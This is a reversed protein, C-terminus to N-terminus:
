SGRARPSTSAPDARDRRARMERAIADLDAPALLQRLAPFLVEEELRLHGAFARELERAAAALRERRDAEDPAARLAAAASVLERVGADHEAHQQHMAALAGDIGPSRGRLRPALSEEEDTVHLPLAVTFYREVRECADSIEGRSASREGAARALATFTRIRDHCELLADVVDGSRRRQGITVTMCSAYAAVAPAVM